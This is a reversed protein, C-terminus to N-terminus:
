EKLLDEVLGKARPILKLPIDLEGNEIEKIVLKLGEKLLYYELLLTESTLIDKLPRNGNAM